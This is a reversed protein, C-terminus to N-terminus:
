KPKGELYNLAKRVGEITDGLKGIASNCDWCLVGRIKGTLHCHDIQRANHSGKGPGGGMALEKGCSECNPVAYLKDLEAFSLNHKLVQNQYQSLMPHQKCASCYARRTADPRSKKLLVESSCGPCTTTREVRKAMELCKTM